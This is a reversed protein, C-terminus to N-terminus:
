PLEVVIGTNVTSAFPRMVPTVFVATDAALPVTVDTAAVPLLPIVTAPDGIVDAPVSANLKPFIVGVPITDDPVTAPM